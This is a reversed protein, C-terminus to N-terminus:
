VKLLVGMASPIALLPKEAKCFWARALMFYNLVKALGVPSLLRPVMVGPWVPLFSSTRGSITFEDFEIVGRAEVVLKM